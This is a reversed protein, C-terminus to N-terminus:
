RVTHRKYGTVVCYRVYKHGWLYRNDQSSFFIDLHVYYQVFRYCHTVSVYLHVFRVVLVLLLCCLHCERGKGACFSRGKERATGREWVGNM